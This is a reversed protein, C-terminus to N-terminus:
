LGTGGHTNVSRNASWVEAVRLVRDRHPRACTYVDLTWSHMNQDDSVIALICIVIFRLQTPSSTAGMWSRARARRSTAGAGTMCREHIMYPAAAQREEAEM